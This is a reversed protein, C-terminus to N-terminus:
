KHTRSAQFHEIVPDVQGYVKRGLDYILCYEPPLLFTTVDPVLKIATDLNKQDWTNPNEQNVKSWEKLVKNAKDTGGFYLTGSLLEKGKFRHFAVDAEITDFLVPPKRVICDADLWCVKGHKGHKELLFKAKYQTNAQWSGLTEVADVEYQLGHRDLSAILNAAQKAYNLTYFSVFLM